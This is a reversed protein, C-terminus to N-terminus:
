GPDWGMQILSTQAHGSVCNSAVVAGLDRGSTLRMDADFWFAWLIHVICNQNYHIYLDLRNVWVTPSEQRSISAHSGVVHRRTPPRIASTAIEFQPLCSVDM